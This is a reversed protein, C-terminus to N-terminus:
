GAHSVTKAPLGHCAAAFRTLRATVEDPAEQQLFHGANLLAVELTGSVARGLHGTIEPGLCRDRKGWMVLTPAEIPAAYPALAKPRLLGRVASRYYQIGARAAEVDAFMRRYPELDDLGTRPPKSWLKVLLAVGAGRRAAFLREPVWPVQFAIMYWSRLLQVPVRRYIRLAAAPPPCALIALGAVRQSTSAAACWAIGGGWDHGVVVAKEAGFADIVGIVDDVLTPIDYPGLPRDSGGYGRLDPAVVRFGNAALEPIVHRWSYSSEPFGHLLVVLPGTGAEVVRLRIGNATVFREVVADVTM